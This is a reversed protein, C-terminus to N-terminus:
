TQLPAQLNGHHTEIIAGDNDEDDRTSGCSRTMGPLQLWPQQQGETITLTLDLARLRSLQMCGNFRRVFVCM